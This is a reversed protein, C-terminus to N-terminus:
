RIKYLLGLKFSSSGCSAEEIAPNYIDKYIQLGRYFEVYLGPLHKQLIIEPLFCVGLNMGASWPITEYNQLGTSEELGTFFNYNVSAGAHLSLGLKKSIDFGVNFPCQLQVVMLKRDGNISRLADHYSFTHKSTSIGSGTELFIRKFIYSLRTGANIGLNTAGTFADPEVNEILNMDTNEIIGGHHIGAHVMVHFRSKNAHVTNGKKVVTCASFLCIVLLIIGMYIARRIM